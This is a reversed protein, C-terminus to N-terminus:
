LRCASCMLGDSLTKKADKVSTAVTPIIDIGAMAFMIITLTSLNHWLKDHPIMNALSFDTASHGVILYAIFCTFLLR